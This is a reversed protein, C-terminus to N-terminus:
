NLASVMRIPAYTIYAGADLNYWFDHTLCFMGNYFGNEMEFMEGSTFHLTSEDNSSFDFYWGYQEGLTITTANMTPDETLITQSYSFSGVLEGILGDESSFGITLGLGFSTTITREQVSNKPWFELVNPNEGYYVNGALFVAYESIKTKQRSEQSRYSSYGPEGLNVMASGPVFETATEVRYIDFSSDANCRFINSVFTIKGYPKAVKTGSEVATNVFNCTTSDTVLRDDDNVQLLNSNDPKYDQNNIFDLFFESIDIKLQEYDTENTTFTRRASFEGVSYYATATIEEDSLNKTISSSKFNFDYVLVYYGENIKTNIIQLIDDTLLTSNGIVFFNEGELICNTKESVKLVSKASVNNFLMTSSLILAILSTILLKKM